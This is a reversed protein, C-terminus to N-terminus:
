DQNSEGFVEILFREMGFPELKEWRKAGPLRRLGQDGTPSFALYKAKPLPEPLADLVPKGRMDLSVVVIDMDGWKVNGNDSRNVCELHSKPLHVDGLHHLLQTFLDTYIQPKYDIWVKLKRM